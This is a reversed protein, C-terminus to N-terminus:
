KKGHRFEFEEKMQGHLAIFYAADVVALPKHNNKQIFLLPQEEGHTAAQKYAAWVNLREQNKCEIGYPFWTRAEKDLQVDAGKEGMIATRIQHDALQLARYLAIAVWNQLRRGKAKGSKTKM